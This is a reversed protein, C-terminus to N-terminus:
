EHFVDRMYVQGRALGLRMAPTKQDEGRLMFNYYFRFIQGLKEIQTPDYYAYQNWIRRGRRPSAFGREFGSIRRRCLMFVRDVPHLSARRYTKAIRPWDMTLGGAVLRIKKGPEAMNVFPYPVDNEGLYEEQVTGTRGIGRRLDNGFVLDAVMLRPFLPMSACHADLLAKGEAVEARKEDITADKRFTVVACEAARSAFLDASAAICAAILGADNDVCFTIKEIAPGLLRRLYLFHAYQLIDIHVMSGRAPLQRDGHMADAAEELDAIAGDVEPAANTSAHSQQPFSPTRWPRPGPDDALITDADISRDPDFPFEEDPSRYFEDFLDDITAEGAAPSGEGFMSEGDRGLGGDMSVDIETEGESDDGSESLRAEASAVADGIMQEAARRRMDQPSLVSRYDEETWVRGHTRFARRSEDLDGAAQMLAEYAEADTQADFQSHLALIFGSSREVTAVQALQITARRTRSPWNITLDQRDTCVMWGRPSMHEIDLDRESQLQMVRRFIFDIKDYVTQFSLGTVEVIRALPSKNMLLRFVIANEHSRLQRRIPSGVSFTKRCRKCMLRPVGTSTRGYSQYENSHLSAPKAFNECGRNKCSHKRQTRICRDLLRQLEEEIAINNKLISSKSGAECILTPPTNQVKHQPGPRKGRGSHVFPDPAVAFQQCRPNKCFNADFGDAGACPLRRRGGQTNQNTPQLTSSKKSTEDSM